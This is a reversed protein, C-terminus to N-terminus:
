WDAFSWEPRTNGLICVRDGREVGLDILGLGIERIVQWAQAYTVDRWDDGLYTKAQDACAQYAAKRDASGSAPPTTADGAAGTFQGVYILEVNHSETCQVAPPWWNM